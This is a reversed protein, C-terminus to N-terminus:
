FNDSASLKSIIQKQMNELDNIAERLNFDSVPDTKEAVADGIFQDDINKYFKHYAYYLVVFVVLAIIIYTYKSKNDGKSSYWPCDKKVETQQTEDKTLESPDSM